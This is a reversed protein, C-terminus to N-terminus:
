EDREVAIEVIDADPDEGAKYQAEKATAWLLTLLDLVAGVGEYGGVDVAHRGDPGDNPADWIRSVHQHLQWRIETQIAREDPTLGALAKADHDAFAEGIRQAADQLEQKDDTM